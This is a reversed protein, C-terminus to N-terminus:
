SKPFELRKLMKLFVKRRKELDVNKWEDEKRIIPGSRVAGGSHLSMLDLEHRLRHEQGEISSAQDHSVMTILYFESNSGVSGSKDVFIGLDSM